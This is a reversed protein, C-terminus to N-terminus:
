SVARESKKYPIHITFTTGKGARSRVAISGGHGSVIQKCISLGLGTGPVKGESANVRYFKEFLHPLAKEPIGMGTDEVALTWDKQGRGATLTIRGGLCNYKIANSILNLVVQKLKDRDAEVPPFDQPVELRIAIQKEDAKAQMIQRCEELMPLLDFAALHFQVRGSELRALDLFTSALTNLRMTESHIGHIMAERQEQSMEPRLLLYTSTGISALPTRLEHVFEAILDSQQFLRTNEIAVAAQAGLVQLLDEDEATFLGQRKNLVELVGVVKEKTILPMALMSETPFRTVQEVKKYIRDDERGDDIRVLKRTSVALGATSGELPVVLGRMTQLDLNTAVQFNLQRAADDYLLISAAGAETLDSAADIIRNLLINLDLTSALDRAIEVLRQYKELKRADLSM